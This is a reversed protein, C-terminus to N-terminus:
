TVVEVEGGPHSCLASFSAPNEQYCLLLTCAESVYFIRKEDRLFTILEASNVTVESLYVLPDSQEVVM